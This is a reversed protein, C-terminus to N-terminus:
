TTGGNFRLRELDDRRRAVFKERDTAKDYYRRLTEPDSNVREAVQEYTWDNNLMWTISGTRVQHPSRSSPCRSAHARSTWECTTPDKDHPCPGHHCPITAHYCWNQLTGAVPRGQPTCFLPERGYEDRGRYRHEDVYVQLVQPTEGVLGIVREGREKKKLPTGTEARQHFSVTAFGDPGTAEIEVDGLDLGQIAGLRAGSYWLLELLAHEPSGYDAHLGRYYEILQEARDAPLQIDSTADGRDLKPIEINRPLSEDVAEIAALWRCLQRVAVMQGKLTTPALGQGIRFNRFREIDYGSLDGVTEIGEDDCWAVFQGLRSEYDRLTEDTADLQRSDIYQQVADEISLEEPDPSTM